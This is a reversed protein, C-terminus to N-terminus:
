FVSCLIIQLKTDSLTRKILLIYIVSVYISYFLRVSFPLYNSYLNKKEWLLIYHGIVHSSINLIM